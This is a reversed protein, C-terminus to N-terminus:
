LIMRAVANTNLAKEKVLCQTKYPWADLWISRLTCPGGSLSVAFLLAEVRWAASRRPPSPAATVCQDHWESSQAQSACHSTAFVDNPIGPVFLDPATLHFMQENRLPALKFVPKGM